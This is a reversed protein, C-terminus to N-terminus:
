PATASSGKIRTRGPGLSGPSSGPGHRSRTPISGVWGPKLRAARNQLGGSVGTGRRGWSWAGDAPPPPYTPRTAGDGTGTTADWEAALADFEDVLHRRLASLRDRGRNLRRARRFVRVDERVRSQRDRWAIAALGTAPLALLVVAMARTGASFWAAAGALALWAPFAVLAAGLKHTAVQDLPPNFRPVVSETLKLPPYWLVFGVAAAPLVLTLLGVQRLSYLLVAGIRYRRPVDGEGAGFLTLLRMYRRVEEILAEAREPDTARLWRVGLAFRRLRPLRDVM